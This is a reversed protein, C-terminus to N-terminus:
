HLVVRMRMWRSAAAKSSTRDKVAKFATGASHWETIVETYEPGSHWTTLDDSVEVFYEVDTASENYLYQALLCPEDGYMFHSFLTIEPRTARPTPDFPVMMYAYEEANSYGDGDPDAAPDQDFTIGAESWAAMYNAYTCDRITLTRSAPGEIDYDPSPLITFIVTEDVETLGDGIPLINISNVPWGAAITLPGNQDFYDVGNLATGTLTYNVTLDSTTPGSRYVSFIRPVAVEVAITYGYTTLSVVPKSELGAKGVSRESRM